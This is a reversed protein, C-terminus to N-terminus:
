CAYHAFPGCFTTLPNRSTSSLGPERWFRTIVNQGMQLTVQFKYAFENRSIQM